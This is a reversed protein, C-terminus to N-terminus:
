HSHHNGWSLLANSGGWGHCQEGSGRSRRRETGHQDCSGRCTERHVGTKHSKYSRNSELSVSGPACAHQLWETHTNVHPSLSHACFRSLSLSLARALSPQSPLRSADYRSSLTLSLPLIGANFSNWVCVCVCVCVCWVAIFIPAAYHGQPLGCDFNSAVAAVPAQNYCM